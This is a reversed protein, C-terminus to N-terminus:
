GGSEDQGLRRQYHIVGDRDILRLQLAAPELRVHVFGQRPVHAEMGAHGPPDSVMAGAGSAVHLAGAADRQVGLVQEEGSLYLDLGHHHLLPLLPGLAPDPEGNIRLIPDHGYVVLWDAAAAALTDALWRRQSRGAEDSRRLVTTDLAIFSVMVGDDLRRDLRYSLAPMRWRPDRDFATMATVDGRHDRNGAVAYFPLDLGKAPYAASFKKEWQPDDLGDVGERRFVDGLLLVLDLGDDRGTAAVAQAVARQGLGGTGTSGLAAFSLREPAAPECAALLLALLVAVTRLITFPTPM